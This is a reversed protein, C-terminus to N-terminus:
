AVPHVDPLRLTPPPYSFAAEHLNGELFGEKGMKEVVVLKKDEARHESTTSSSTVRVHYSIHTALLSDPRQLPELSGQFLTQKGYYSRALLSLREIFSTPATDEPIPCGCHTYSVGFREQYIILNRSRHHSRHVYRGHTARLKSLLLWHVTKSQPRVIPISPHHAVSSTLPSIVYQDLFYKVFHVCDSM